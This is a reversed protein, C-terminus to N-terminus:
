AAAKDKRPRGGRRGNRRAADAKASSRASGGKAGLRSAMWTSSGLRGELLGPLYLDADLKPFHIGLGSPSIEIVRLQSPTAEELGQADHPSFAVALGTSLEIFVRGLRRDYRASIARPFAAAMARGRRNAQEFEKRSEMSERGLRLLLTLSRVLGQSITTLERRAFGYNERLTVSGQPVNLEFVAEHGRGIVHVHAPRHDNPYVVVRLAGLRLVTPM